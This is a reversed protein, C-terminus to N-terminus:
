LKRMHKFYDFNETFSWISVDIDFGSGVTTWAETSCNDETAQPRKALTTIAAFGEPFNSVERAM